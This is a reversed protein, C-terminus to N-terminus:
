GEGNSAFSAKQKIQQMYTGAKLFFIIGSKTIKKDGFKPLKKLTSAGGEEPGEVEGGGEKLM